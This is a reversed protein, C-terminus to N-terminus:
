CLLEEPQHAVNPLAQAVPRRHAAAAALSSAAANGWLAHERRDGDWSPVGASAKVRATHSTNAPPPSDAVDHKRPPCGRQAAGMM